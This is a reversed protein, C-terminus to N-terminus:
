WRLVEGGSLPLDLVGLDGRNFNVPTLRGLYRREIHLTALVSRPRTVGASLLVERVTGSGVVAMATGNANV